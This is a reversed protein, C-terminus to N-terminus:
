ELVLNQIYDTLARRAAQIQQQLNQITQRAAEIEREQQTLKQVYQKYLDSARDLERMNARVREQDREIAQIQEQQTRVAAELEAIQKRRNIIEQLARRLAESAQADRLLVTLTEESTELLAYRTEIVREEVAQLTASKGAAIPVRFRYFNRTREAQAPELLQWEGEYPQEVLVTRPEGERNTLIYRNTRRVKVQQQLVGKVIKSTLVQTRTEQLDQKVEVGMDQAYTLIREGKPEVTEMLADGGYSDGYYITVPGEMLTLDTTNILRVGFFPHVPHRSPNYLSIPEARVTQNIVPLMASQQRSISVPTQVRYVFLAGREEGTAMAILSREMLERSDGLTPMGARAGAVGGFGGGGVDGKRRPAMDPEGSEALPIAAEPAFPTLARGTFLPIQPRELYFPEYLNQVFSIPRGSVLSVQVNQWDEDTTNEVIAWGQLLPAGERPLVLRYTMKWLPMETLYGILVRRRGRGEFRLEVPKRANDLGSGLAQLAGSLEQQLREDLLRFTIISSLEVSQIGADTLLNLFKEERQRAEKDFSVPVTRTEVSLIRCELAYMTTSRRFFPNDDEPTPTEIPKAGQLFRYTRLEIPVGRLRTLLTSLNPNDAINIAYSSLTRSLPDRSAYQVPQIRGGDFDVLVM